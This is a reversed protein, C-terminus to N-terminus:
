ELLHRRVMDLATQSVHQKIKEREGAFKFDRCWKKGNADVAIFVLGVSKSETGGDPGAIGTVALGIDAKSIDRVGTAMALATERSVAGFEKITDEPVKLFEQKSQNSYVVAGREFYASSGPVNTIRNSILGGTCSEAVAIKKGKERCLKGVVQEMTENDYGFINDAFLKQIEELVEASTKEIEENTKATFFVNIDVQSPYARLSLEVKEKTKMGELISDVKSETLGCIKVTKSFVLPLDSYKKKLEPLVGELMMMKMESPVGPLCIILKGKWPMYIGPATGLPNNIIKANKPLFAQKMNSKPMEVNRRKFHGEIMKMVNEDYVLNTGLVETMVKKTLDDFTPGLGGTTVILDARDLATRFVEKIREPEDDVSSKYNVRVGISYLKEAIFAFNTDVVHGMMLETGITIIEAKM